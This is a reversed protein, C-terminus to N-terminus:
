TEERWHLAKAAAVMLFLGLLVGLLLDLGHDPVPAEGQIVRLADLARAEWNFAMPSLHRGMWHWVLGGTGYIRDVVAVVVGGLLLAGFRGNRGSWGLSALLAITGLLPLAWLTDVVLQAGTLAWLRFPHASGWLLGVASHGYATATASFVLLGLLQSIVVTAWVLALALGATLVKGGLYAWPSLPMSLFFLSSRNQRERNVMGSFLGVVLLSGMAALLHAHGLALRDLMRGLEAPSTTAALDLLSATSMRNWNLSTSEVRTDTAGGLSDAIGQQEQRVEVQLSVGNRPVLVLALALLLHLLSVVVPLWLLSRHEWVERRMLVGLRRWGDRSFPSM